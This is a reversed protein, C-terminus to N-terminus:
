NQYFKRVNPLLALLLILVGQVATIYTIPWWGVLWGEYGLWIAIGIVLLITGTWAWHHGSWRTIKEAFQWVPRAILGYALLLPFFGMFVTLFIGPLIFDNVPLLPLMDAFDLYGGSDPDTLMPIGGSFGGVSLLVLVVVLLWVMVPRDMIKEKEKIDLQTLELANVSLLTLGLDRTKKLIGHLAADDIVEGTITTTGDSGYNFEMGDFWDAWSEDLHGGLKIIYTQGKPNNNKEAM